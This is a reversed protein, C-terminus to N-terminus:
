YLYVYYYCYFPNNPYEKKYGIFIQDAWVLAKAYDAIGIEKFKLFILILVNCYLLYFSSFLVEVFDNGDWNYIYIKKKVAVCLSPSASRSTDLSYLNAGKVRNLTSRLGFSPLNYM